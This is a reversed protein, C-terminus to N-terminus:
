RTLARLSHSLRSVSYASLPLKSCLHKLAQIHLNSRVTQKYWRLWDRDSADAPIQGKRIAHAKFERVEGSFRARMLYLWEPELLISYKDPWCLLSPFGGGYRKAYERSHFLALACSWDGDGGLRRAWRSAMKAGREPHLKGEQGDINPCGWYGWDHFFIAVLETRNPWERYLARWALTVFLPHLLFQHVGFLLSKTGIKM